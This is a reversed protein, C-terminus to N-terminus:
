KKILFSTPIARAGYLAFTSNIIKDEYVMVSSTGGDLNAANYAEYRLMVELCDKYTAGLSSSQRGDIVLLLVTGDKRQGIVTRPNLGGGTGVVPAAEGNVIYFPGFSLADRIGMNLAEQGTYTGLVLVNDKNFGIIEHKKDLGGSILKGHQIVMGLPDGGHGMGGVDAFGGGNVGGIAGERKVMKDTREGKVGLQDTVGVYLRSPDRIIMMKGKYTGGSVDEIKISSLEEETTNTEDPTEILDTNTVEEFAIVTNQSLIEKVREEGLFGTALIKAASTEMVTTVFLGRYYESPGYLFLLITGLLTVIIWFLTILIINILTLIPRFRRKKIPKIATAESM